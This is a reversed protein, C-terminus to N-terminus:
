CRSHSHIVPVVGNTHKTYSVCGKCIPQVILLAGNSRLIPENHCLIGRSPGVM